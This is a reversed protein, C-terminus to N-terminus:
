TRRFYIFSKKSSTELLREKWSDDSLSDAKADPGIGAESLAKDFATRTISPMFRSLAARHIGDFIGENPNQTFRRLIYILRRLSLSIAIGRIGVDNSARLREVLSILRHAIEKNVSPILRSIVECQENISMPKLNHFMFMSLIQENLWKTSNISESDALAVLRFNEAIKHVGKQALLEDSFGTKAKMANYHMSGILRSGDPLQLYRHHILTALSEVTSWHIKELGDLICLAGKKAARVLQSNEWVTDGNSLMRRQQILERSNM